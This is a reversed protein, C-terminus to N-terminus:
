FMHKFNTNSKNMNYIEWSKKYHINKNFILSIKKKRFVAASNITSFQSILFVTGHSHWPITVTIVRMTISTFSSSLHSTRRQRSKGPRPHICDPQYVVRHEYGCKVKRETLRYFPWVHKSLLLPGAELPVGEQFYEDEHKKRM